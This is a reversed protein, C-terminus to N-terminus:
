CSPLTRAPSSSAPRSVVWRDGEVFLCESRDGSPLTGMRERAATQEATQKSLDYRGKAFATM